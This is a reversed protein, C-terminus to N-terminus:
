WDDEMLLNQYANQLERHAHRDGAKLAKELGTEYQKIANDREGEEELFKAFHYYTAVFDSHENVLREFGKRAKDVDELKLHELTIAYILFPDNPAEALFAQLKELRETM